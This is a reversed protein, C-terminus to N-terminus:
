HWTTSYMSFKIGKEGPFKICLWKTKTLSELLHFGPHRPIKLLSLDWTTLGKPGEDQAVHRRLNLCKSSKSEIIVRLCEKQPNKCACASANIFIEKDVLEFKTHM